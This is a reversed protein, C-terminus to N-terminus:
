ATVDGAISVPGALLTAVRGDPFTLQLDWRGMGPAVSGWDAADLTVDVVNPLTIACGLVLQDDGREIVAAASAGTLDIPFAHADDGWVRITWAASDGRYLTLPLSGPLTM